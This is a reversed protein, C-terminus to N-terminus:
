SHDGPTGNEHNGRHIRPGCFSGSRPSICADAKLDKALRALSAVSAFDAEWPQKLLQCKQRVTISAARPLGRSLLNTGTLGRKRAQLHAGKPQTRTHSQRQTRMALVGDRTEEEKIPCWDQQTLAWGHGM